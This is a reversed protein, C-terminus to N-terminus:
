LLSSLAVSNYFGGPFPTCSCSDSQPPSMARIALNVRQTASSVNVMAVDQSAEEQPDSCILQQSDLALRALSYKTKHCM